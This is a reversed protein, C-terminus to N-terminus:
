KPNIGIAEIRRHLGFKGVKGLQLPTVGTGTRDLALVAPLQRLQTSLSRSWEARVDDDVHSATDCFRDPDTSFIRAETADLVPAVQALQLRLEKRYRSWKTRETAAILIPTEFFIVHAGRLEVDRVFQGSHAIVKRDPAASPADHPGFSVLRTPCRVLGGHDDRQWVSSVPDVREPPSLRNFVPVDPIPLLLPWDAHQREPLDIQAIEWLRDALRRAGRTENAEAEQTLKVFWSANSYIVLDGKRIHPLLYDFYNADSGIRRIMAMNIVPIGLDRELAKADVAYIVSSGGAFIIRPSPTRASAGEIHQMEQVFVQATGDYDTPFWRANQYSTGIFVVITLLIFWLRLDIVRM